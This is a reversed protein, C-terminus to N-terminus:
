MASNEVLIYAQIICNMEGVEESFPRIEPVEKM